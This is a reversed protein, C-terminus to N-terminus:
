EARDGYGITTQPREPMALIEVTGFVMPVTTAKLHNVDERLKAIAPTYTSTTTTISMSSPGLAPTLLLAKIPTSRTTAVKTQKKKAQDMLYEAEIKRINISTTPM